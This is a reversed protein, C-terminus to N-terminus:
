SSTLRRERQAPVQCARRLSFEDYEERLIRERYKARFSGHNKQIQRAQLQDQIIRVRVTAFVDDRAQQESPSVIQHKSSM